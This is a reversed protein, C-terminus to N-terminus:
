GCSDNKKLARRARATKQFYASGRNTVESTVGGSDHDLRHSFRAVTPQVQGAVGAQKPSASVQVPDAWSADQWFAGVGDDSEIRVKAPPIGAHTHLLM